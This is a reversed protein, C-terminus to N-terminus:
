TTLSPQLSAAAEALAAKPMFFNALAIGSQMLDVPDLQAAEQETLKPDSIRPVVKTITDAEMDLIARISVGRLAGANPKHLTISAVKNDGRQIPVELTITATNSM